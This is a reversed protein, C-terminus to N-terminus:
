GTGHKRVERAIAAKADTDSGRAGSTEYYNSLFLKTEGDLAYRREHLSSCLGTWLSSVYVWDLFIRTAEVVEPHLAIKARIQSETAKKESEAMAANRVIQDVKAEVAALDSKAKDRYSAALAANRSAHWYREAHQQWEEDLSTPDIVLGSEQEALLRRSEELPTESPTESAQKTVRRVIHEAM